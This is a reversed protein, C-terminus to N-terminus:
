HAGGADVPGHAHSPRAMWVVAVLSLFVLASAAFIDDASLTFAQQDILRNIFFLSQERSLGQSSLGALAQTAPISAYNIAETLQSHHLAARSEWLTTAISTGFAGATIRAFNTLGSAAPIREPPLGSMILTMLPVFFFAMGLGQIFTPIM